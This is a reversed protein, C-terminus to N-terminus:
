YLNTFYPLHKTSFWYQTPGKHCLKPNSWSTPSSSACIPALVSFKFYNVYHLIKASFTFELRGNILPKNIPDHSIHGAGLLEGTVVEWVTSNILYKSLQEKYLESYSFILKNKFIKKSNLYLTVTNHTTKLVNACTTKFPAGQVLGGKDELNTIYYM